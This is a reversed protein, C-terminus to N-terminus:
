YGSLALDDQTLRDAFCEGPLLLAVVSRTFGNITHKLTFSFRVDVLEPPDRAVVLRVMCCRDGQFTTLLMKQALRISPSPRSLRTFIVGTLFMFQLQTLLTHVNQILLCVHADLLPEVPSAGNISRSLSFLLLSLYPHNPDLSSFSDMLMSYLVFFSGTTSLIVLGSM